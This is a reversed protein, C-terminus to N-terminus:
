LFQDLLWVFNKTDMMERKVQRQDKGLIREVQNWTKDSSRVDFLLQKQVSDNEMRCIHAIYKLMQRHVDNEVEVAHTIQQVEENTIKFSWDLDEEDDSAKKKKKKKGRREKPVNKRAFGGRVMHRLFNMWVVKVKAVEAKTLQWAQVSYMLRSRVCAHLLKMRVALRIEKDTLVNKLENWKQYAASIRQTLFSSTNSDNSLLHGLYSFQQVNEIKIGNVTILSKSTKIDDNVNFAMTKTKDYSMQLGFRAFTKDYINIVEELEKLSTAFIAADDAYLVEGIQNEGRCLARQRMERTSCENPISYAVTVGAKPYKQKIEHKTCRIVFDLYLNFIPPSELGGQRCGVLTDFYVATCKICASTGTYLARLISVLKPCQLRIELVRFLAERPVWDYAAKLDIFCIYLPQKSNSIIKRTIFIADCTSRNKRFGFQTPLLISEYTGRIRDVIISSIIKSLTATISIGRYNEALMKSLKKHLCTITSQLWSKPIKVVTWILSILMVIYVLLRSSTAYKLQEAHLTDTGRCKGNKLRQLCDTVEENDPTEENVPLVNEPPIIHQFKEPEVLESQMKFERKAFHNSFHKTLQEAPIPIKSCKNLSSYTKALRFEEETRREENAINIKSAKEKFYENKLKMRQSRIEKSLQDRKITDKEKRRQNLLKVFNEDTWPKQEKKSNREPIINSAETIVDVIKAELSDVDEDSNPPDCLLKDLEKNYNDCIEEDDQLLKVNPVRKMKERGARKRSFIQRITKKTPFSADLVVVRHDSDFADSVAPYVRCNQVVRKVYWETLIYDLRRFYGIPSKFTWRHHSTKTQFMTNMIYLKNSEAFEILKTGNYSTEELDNNRGVYASQACDIGITANFDGGIALKYSSHEMKMRSVSKSLSHFFADKSSIAYTEDPAYCSFVAFKVGRVVVRAAVIRGELYYEVDILKVHPALVLSVGQLARKKLGYYCVRWGKLVPDDFEVEGKGTIRTEQMCCIDHHLEKVHTVCEALKIECKATRVNISTIRVHHQNIFVM